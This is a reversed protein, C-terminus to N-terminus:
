EAPPRLTTAHDGGLLSVSVRVGQKAPPWGSRQEYSFVHGDRPADGSILRADVLGDRVHKLSSILNDDDFAQGTYCTFHVRKPRSPAAEVSWRSGMAEKATLYVFKRQRVSRQYRRLWHEKSAVNPSVLRVDLWLEM